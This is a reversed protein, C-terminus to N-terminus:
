LRSCARSCRGLEAECFQPLIFPDRLAETVSKLTNWAGADPVREPADEKFQVISNFFYFFFSWASSVASLGRQRVRVLHFTKLSLGLRDYLNKTIRKTKRLKTLSHAPRSRTRPELTQFMDPLTKRLSPWQISSTSTSYVVSLGRQRVPVLQSETHRQELSWPSSCARSRVRSSAVCNRAWTSRKRVSRVWSCCRSLSTSARRPSMWTRRKRSWDFAMGNSKNELVM